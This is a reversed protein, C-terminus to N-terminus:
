PMINHPPKAFIDHGAPHMTERRISGRAIGMAKSFM